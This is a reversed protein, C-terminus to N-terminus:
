ASRVALVMERDAMRCGILEAIKCHCARCGAGAGTHQSVERVTEAGTVAICDVIRSERVHLCRCVVADSDFNM